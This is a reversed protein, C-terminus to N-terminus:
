EWPKNKRTLFLLAALGFCVVALLPMYKAWNGAAGGGAATLSVTTNGSDAIIDNKSMSTNYSDATDTVTNTVNTKSSSFLGM